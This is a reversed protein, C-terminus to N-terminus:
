KVVFMRAIRGGSQPMWGEKLAGMQKCMKCYVRGTVAVGNVYKTPIENSSTDIDSGCGACCVIASRDLLPQTEIQEQLGKSKEESM